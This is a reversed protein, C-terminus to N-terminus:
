ARVPAASPSSAVLSGFAGSELMEEAARRGADVAVDLKRFDRLAVGEVLPGVVVQALRRNAEAREVSSLVTARSLTELITPLTGAAGTVGASAFQRMVDVALIPGSEAAAMVDVPLNNLIGGDILLQAEHVRPPALGPISMSTAVADVLSGERHVVMEGEVLDASITFLPRPLEEILADGFVRRLMSEGRRGRVLSYRPVTYDSFPSRGSVEERTTEIMREVPWGLAVMSAIFSGMSTGGVRDFELEEGALVQLVGLHAFARAGGGSLVLGLSRGTLRRAARAAAPPDDDAIVHHARPHVAARWAPLTRAAEAGLFAVDAGDPVDITAPPPGDAVVVVRDAQRLCFDRWAGDGGALLLVHAHDQERAALARAWDDDPPAEVFATSGLETFATCLAHWFPGAQASVPAVAFVTPLSDPEALGGSQQLQRALSTALGVGLEHDRALLGLFDEGDLALLETDRVAQVSASRPSDTLVALEGIAAGPGVMRATQLRGDREVVVRLRGSVVFYLREAPDGARFLWEQAPLRV